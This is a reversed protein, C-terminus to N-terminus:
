RAPAPAAPQTVVRQLVQGFDFFNGSGAPVIISQVGPNLKKISELQLVNASLSQNLLNNAEAQARAETLVATARGEAAIRQSNAQGLAVAEAQRAKAEEVAVQNQATVAQQRAESAKDIQTRYADTFDIDVILFDDVTISYEKLENRLADRIKGRIEERSQLIVEAKYQSITAKVVQYMRNLVITEKYAQGPGRALVFVDEKNVNLNVVGQVYVDQIDVSGANMCEKTGNSCSTDPRIIQTKADWKELTQWPATFQMGKDKSGTIKGFTRVVGVEREDVFHLMNMGAWGFQLLIVFLALGIGLGKSPLDRYETDNSDRGWIAIGIGVLGIFGLLFFGILWGM